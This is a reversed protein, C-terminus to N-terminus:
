LPMRDDPAPVILRVPFPPPGLAPSGTATPSSVPTPEDCFPSVPVGAGDPRADAAAGRADGTSGVFVGPPTARPQLAPM